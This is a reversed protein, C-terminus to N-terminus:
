WQSEPRWPSLVQGRGMPSLGRDEGDGGVWVGPKHHSGPDCVVRVLVIVLHVEEERLSDRRWIPARAMDGDAAQAADAHHSPPLPPSPPSTRAASGRGWGAGVRLLLSVSALTHLGRGQRQGSPSPPPPSSPRGRPGLSVRAESGCFSAPPWRTSTFLHLVKRLALSTQETGPGPPASVWKSWSPLPLALPPRPAPTPLGLAMLPPCHCHGETEWLIHEQQPGLCPLAELHVCQEARDPPCM